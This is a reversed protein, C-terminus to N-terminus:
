GVVPAPVVIADRDVWWPESLCFVKKEKSWASLEQLTEVDLNLASQDSIDPFEFVLVRTSGSLALENCSLVTLGLYGSRLTRLSSEVSGGNADLRRWRGALGAANAYLKVTGSAARQLIADESTMLRFAAEELSYRPQALPNDYVAQAKRAGGRTLEEFRYAQTDTLEEVTDGVQVTVTPKQVCGFINKWRSANLM